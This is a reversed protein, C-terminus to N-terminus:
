WLFTCVQLSAVQRQMSHLDQTVAGQRAHLCAAMDQQVDVLEIDLQALRSAAGYKVEDDAM